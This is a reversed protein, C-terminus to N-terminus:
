YVIMAGSLGFSTLRPTLDLADLSERSIYYVLIM